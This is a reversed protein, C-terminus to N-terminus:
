SWKERATKNEDNGGLLCLAWRGVTKGACVFLGVQGVVQKGANPVIEFQLCSTAV